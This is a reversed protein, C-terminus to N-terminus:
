GCNKTLSPEGSATPRHALTRLTPSCHRPLPSTTRTTPHRLLELRSRGASPLNRLTALGTATDRRPSSVWIFESYDATAYWVASAWLTGDENAIALTMYQNADVIAKVVSQLDAAANM